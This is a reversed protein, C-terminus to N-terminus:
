RRRQRKARKVKPKKTTRKRPKFVNYPNAGGTGFGGPLGEVAGSSVTAMEDITDDILRDLSENSTSSAVNWVTEKEKANLHKPLKSIFTDKDGSAILNRLQTGGMGAGGIVPFVMEEVNVGPNNREAWSQAGAYRKDGVDKDSKGLIVTDGESFQSPDAILDYVDGVPTKGTQIRVKINDDSRTYIDWLTKSQEPTVVIKPEIESERSKGGIIVIVNDINPDSSLMKALGYHGAHPPKFGGPLLAVRKGEVETIVTSNNLSENTLKTSGKAYKFLGLIQNIPAFNGTLKYMHGDYDFVIGEVPTTINSMDKIKNLQQQLVEMSQPDKDGAATINEVAKALEQKQREVEKGSDLIFVSQLGKLVEVAFDHVVEELPAIAQRLLLQKSNKIDSLVQRTEQNQDKKLNRLGINGPMGLLYQSIQKRFEEPFQDDLGTYLRKYVYSGITDSDSLGESSVLSNISSVAKKFPEQDELKELKLIASRVLSFKENSLKNQMNKLRSDLVALNASVDEDTKEGSQKDFRFHGRDHIKLTKSDYLIVNANDPDMIEANYWIDADDGFIQIKEQDSLAEVAKEFGSFGDVFADTLNGRDAFKSALDTANLGGGRLNGKNRAGKAKGDKTSYSLFLNQGDVKEEAEIDASYVSQMIEKMKSFTLSPNDYLHSMHGAIGGM